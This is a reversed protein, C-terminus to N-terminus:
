ALFENVLRMSESLFENPNELFITNKEKKFWTRQRKAFQMTKTTLWYKYEDMTYVGDLYDVALMYDLGLSRLWQKCVGDKLLNKTEEIMGLNLREVNRREIIPLLLEKLPLLCIQLVDYERKGHNNDFGYNEILARSYLGTGGVLIPVKGRSQIEKILKGAMQQFTHVDFLAKPAIWEGEKPPDIIDILHHPIGDMEDQTVKASGIDLGRYVQRSDVSIVEGNFQKAVKIGIGTKGSATLGVISIIKSM